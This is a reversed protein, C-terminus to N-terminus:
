EWNQSKSKLSLYYPVVNSMRKGSFSLFLVAGIKKMKRDTYSIVIVKITPLLIHNM